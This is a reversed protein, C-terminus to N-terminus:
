ESHSPLYRERVARFASGKNWKPFTTSNALRYGVKFLLRLDDVAGSLDWNRDYEDGPKHYRLATFEDRKARAWAEGHEINEIGADTYLAPVGKKAFSFHDSRFFGGKEPEPDPRVTRGDERAADRIYDDLQSNGYGVVTIDHTPGWINLGDMNIEVVTKDLPYVPHAAYYASGLLGQEEATVAMFLISRCPPSPLAAFARALSLLGSVGSANDLAGNFIQDGRRSHDRGLHDWHASYIIYEDARDVGPVVALVNHSVSHQLKNYLSLTVTTNLPVARFGRETAAKELTALELGSRGFLAEAANRRFWGEVSVRGMNGDDSVQDFQPGSWSGSVVEWPYGAPRTEHIIFAAEAGQRAAEEYKYTWRGYYTMTNGRFITSDQTAFGPDNVLMVVTKGHVDLGAYDNWGYEPAVIGYGVFVMDSSKVKVSDTVRKTWAMYDNKYTLSDTNLDHMFTLVPEDMVTISVLPVEQLYSDGNGPALGMTAFQTQLYALTKEEGPSAPARGEFSDSALIKIPGRLGNATIQDLATGTDM